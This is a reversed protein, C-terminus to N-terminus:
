RAAAFALAILGQQTLIWGGPAQAILGAKKLARLLLPEVTAGDAILHLGQVLRAQVLKEHPTRFSRATRM